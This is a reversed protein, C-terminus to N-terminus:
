PMSEVFFTLFYPSGYSELSENFLFLTKYTGLHDYSSDIVTKVM